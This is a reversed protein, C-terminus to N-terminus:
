VDAYCERTVVRHVTSEKVPYDAAISSYTEGAVRRRRIDRVEEPRLKRKEDLAVPVDRPLREPRMEEHLWRVLAGVGGLKPVNDRDSSWGACTNARLGTAEAFQRWGGVMHALDRAMYIPAHGYQPVLGSVFWERILACFAPSVCGSAEWGSWLHSGGFIQSMQAQTRTKWLGARWARAEEATIPRPDIDFPARPQYDIPKDLNLNM